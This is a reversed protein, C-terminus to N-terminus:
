YTGVAIGWPANLEASIAPGNDGSFGPVGTGAVVALTKTNADLRFVSHYSLSTMFVPM